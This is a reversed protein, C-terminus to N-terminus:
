QHELYLPITYKGKIPKGFLYAPKFKPLQHIAELVQKGIKKSIGKLIESTVVEGNSGIIVIVAILIRKVEVEEKVEARDLTLRAQIFKRLEDRGGIYEPASIWNDTKILSDAKNRARKFIDYGYKNILKKENSLRLM